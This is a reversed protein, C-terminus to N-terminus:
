RGAEFFVDPSTGFKAPLPINSWSSDHGLRAEWWGVLSYSNKGVLNGPHFYSKQSDQDEVRIVLLNADDKNIFSPKIECICGGKANTNISLENGNMWAKVVLAPSQLQLDVGKETMWESPIRICSRYWQIKGQQLLSKVEPSAPLNITNWHKQLSHADIKKFTPLTQVDKIKRSDNKFQFPKGGLIQDSTITPCVFREVHSIVLDHGTFHDVFPWQKPNYMSDTMDRMLVVNKKNSVLQRLGFPRGLVCMNTHVGLLVINKIGKQELINWVEDGKDSIFDKETDIQIMSSQAKWPMNPNRGLAKLKASWEKHEILDDDEGGDSQDIPYFAKEESPIRSCWSEINAPLPKNKPSSVARLRCPNDKYAEMCDSPSHIILSGQRRATQLVKNLTPAFEELRRVANISHHYDWVDCVIFATEIPKWSQNVIIREFAQSDKLNEKQQRLSLTFDAAQISGVLTFSLVLVSTLYEHLLM